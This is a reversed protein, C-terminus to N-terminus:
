FIHLTEIFVIGRFNGNRAILHPEKQHEFIYNKTVCRGDVHPAEVYEAIPGAPILPEKANKVRM